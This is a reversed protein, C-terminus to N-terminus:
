LPPLGRLHRCFNHQYDPATCKTHYSYCCDRNMQITGVCKCDVHNIKESM